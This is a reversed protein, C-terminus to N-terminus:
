WSAPPIHSLLVPLFAACGSQGHVVGQAAPPRGPSVSGCHSSAPPVSSSRTRRAPPSAPMPRLHEQHAIEKAVRDDEPVHHGFYYLPQNPRPQNPKGGSGSGQWRILACSLGRADSLVFKYLGIPVPPSPFPTVKRLVRRSAASPHDQEQPHSPAPRASAASSASHPSM